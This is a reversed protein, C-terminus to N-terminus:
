CFFWMCVYKESSQLLLRRLCYALRKTLLLEKMFIHKIINIPHQAIKGRGDKM